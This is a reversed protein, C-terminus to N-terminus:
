SAVEVEASRPSSVSEDGVIEGDRIKIIRNAYEAIHAEHTILVVTKGERNLKQFIAMIESGSQTDLSGTPEDAFLIDPENVLARAIAVRQQEGGSMESPTHNSRDSLGVSELAREALQHINTSESYLLPLEVNEVATTRPLLHFAQFVFGIKQNRIKALKDKNLEGIPNGDLLYMGEDPKDLLGMLNMLTTKGSGSPGMIAVFEGQQISLTANRVAQVGIGNEKFYSKSVNVLEIMTM